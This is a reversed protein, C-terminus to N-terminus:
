RAQIGWPNLIAAARQILPIENYADDAVPTKSVKISNEEGM